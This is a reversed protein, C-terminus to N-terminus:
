HRATGMSWSPRPGAPRGPQAAAREALVNAIAAPFDSFRACAMVCRRLEEGRRHALATRLINELWARREQPYPPRIRFRHTVLSGPVGLVPWGARRWRLSLEVDEVGFGTFAAFGGQRLFHDRGVALCGGPVVDVPVVPGAQAPLRLWRYTFLDDVLRAGCGVFAPEAADRVAAGLVALPSDDLAQVLPRLWGGDVECHADLFVLTPQTAARAGRNRAAAIGTHPQRLVTVNAPWARDASGDTGGDDVIIIEAPGTRAVDLVTAALADGEQYTSIIVSAPTM